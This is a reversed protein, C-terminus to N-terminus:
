QQTVSSQTASTAGSSFTVVPDCHEETQTNLLDYMVSLM